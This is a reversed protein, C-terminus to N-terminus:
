EVGCEFEYTGDETFVEVQERLELNILKVHKQGSISVFRIAPHFGLDMVEESPTAALMVLNPSMKLIEALFESSSHTLTLEKLEHM